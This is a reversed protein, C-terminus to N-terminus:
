KTAFEIQSRPKKSSVDDGKPEEVGKKEEDIVQLELNKVHCISEDHGM